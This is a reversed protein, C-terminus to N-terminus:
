FRPMDGIQELESVGAELEITTEGSSNNGLFARTGKGGVTDHVFVEDGQALSKCVEDFSVVESPGVAHMHGDVKKWTFEVFKGDPDKKAHSVIYTEM